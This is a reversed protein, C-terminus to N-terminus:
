IKYIGCQSGMHQCHRSQRTSTVGGRLLRRGRLACSAATSQSAATQQGAAAVLHSVHKPLNSAAPPQLAISEFWDEEFNMGFPQSLQPLWVAAYQLSLYVFFVVVLAGVLAVVVLAGVLPAVRTM